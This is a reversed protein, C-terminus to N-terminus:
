GMIRLFTLKESFEAFTNYLNDRAFEVLDHSPRYGRCFRSESKTYYLQASSIVVIYSHWQLTRRCNVISPTVPKELRNKAGNSSLFEGQDIHIIICFM